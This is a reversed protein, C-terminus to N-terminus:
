VGGAEDRGAGLLRVAWERIQRDSSALLPRARRTPLPCVGRLAHLVDNYFGTCDASRLMGPWDSPQSPFYEPFLLNIIDCEFTTAPPRQIAAWNNIVISM